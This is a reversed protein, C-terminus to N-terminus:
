EPPVTMELNVYRIFIVNRQQQFKPSDAGDSQRKLHSPVQKWWALLEGDLLVAASLTRSQTSAPSSFRGSIQKDRCNAWPNYLDTLVSDIIHTLKITQHFFEMLSPAGTPQRPTFHESTIYQDDVNLPLEVTLSELSRISPPRGTKMSLTRDMVYCAWWIRKRMEDEPAQLLGSPSNLHLGIGFASRIMLGALSWTENLDMASQSHHCMLLLAQMTELSGTGFMLRDLLLRARHSFLAATNSREAKTVSSCFECGFAFVMNLLALWSAPLPQSSSYQSWTEKYDSRFSPEHVFPYLSHIHEFYADVLSDADHRLPLEYQDLASGPSIAIQDNSDSTAISSIRGKKMHRDLTMQDGRRRIHAVYSITSSGGLYGEAAGPTPSGNESEGTNSNDLLDATTGPPHAATGTFPSHYEVHNRTGLGSAASIPSQSTSVAAQATISEQFGPGM